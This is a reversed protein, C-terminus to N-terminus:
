REAVRMRGCHPFLDLQLGDRHTFVIAIGDEWAANGAAVVARTVGIKEIIGAVRYTYKRAVCRLM